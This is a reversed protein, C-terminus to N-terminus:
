RYFDAKANEINNAVYKRPTKDNNVIVSNLKETENKESLEFYSYGRKFYLEAKEDATLDYIDVAWFYEIAEKYKKKRYNYKGLNFYATRKHPSEPHKEIFQKLLLEADKNFLEIACIASYYEADVRALSNPDKHTEVVKDFFHQAAGYKQNEYLQM